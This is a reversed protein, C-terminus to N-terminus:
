PLVGIAQNYRAVQRKRESQLRTVEYRSEIAATQIKLLDILDIEGTEYAKEGMSFHREAIDARRRAAALSEDIVSLRHAAEHMDLELKRVLTHLRAQAAAVARSASATEARTHPSGGFPMTFTIGISEDFQNGFASRESRPGISLTPSGKAAAKVVDRRARERVLQANAFVLAPHAPIITEQAGKVESAFVPRQALGTLSEYGREADLVSARAATLMNETEILASQALLVDALAVDGLQHRREVARVLGQRTALAAEAKHLEDYALAMDWQATRVLGAVEWRLAADAALYAEGMSRGLGRNARREGWRWLPLQLGAEYEELRNDPGWRDTQYRFSVSPSDSLWQRGRVQWADAEQNMAALEVLGPYRAVTADLVVTLTLSGDEVVQPHDHGNDPGTVADVSQLLLLVICLIVPSMLRRVPCLRRLVFTSMM